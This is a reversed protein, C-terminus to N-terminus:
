YVKTYASYIMNIIFSCKAHLSNILRLGRAAKYFFFSSRFQFQIVEIGAM